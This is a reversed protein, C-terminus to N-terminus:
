AAVMPAGGSQETGGEPATRIHGYTKILKQYLEDGRKEAVRRMSQEHALNDKVWILERRTERHDWRDQELQWIIADKEALKAADRRRFIAEAITSAVLWVWIMIVGLTVVNQFYQTWDM